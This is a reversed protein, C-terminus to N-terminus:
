KLLLMKKTFSKLVGNESQIELRYFYMGSPLQQADFNTQHRGASYKEQQLISKVERGLVDIVRLTVAARAQLEFEIVTSPNFPNPYNQLLQYTYSKTNETQEQSIEIRVTQLEHREGSLDESWLRYFYTGFEVEDDNFAYTGGSTGKTALGSELSFDSIQAYTEGEKKREIIFGRNQNESLTKWNLLVGTETKTATLGQFEVPLPIDSAPDSLAWTSFETVGSLEVYNQETNVTGGMQQWAGSGENYRYLQLGAEALSAASVEADTYYMRLAADFVMGGIPEITIYRKVAKRSSTNPPETNPFIEVKVQSLNESAFNLMVGYGSAADQWIYNGAGAISVSDGSKPLVQQLAGLTYLKGFGWSNNHPPINGTAGDTRASDTIAAMFESVSLAPRAQLLIAGLGAIHPAAASTGTFSGATTSVDTPATIEPKPLNTRTPGVSSGSYITGSGVSYAAVSIASDATSPTTINKYSTTHSAWSGYSLKWGDFHVEDGGVDALRLKWGSEGNHNQLLFQIERDGNPEYNNHYVLINGGDESYVNESLSFPGYIPSGGPAILYALLSDSGDYWIHAYFQGSGTNFSVEDQGGNPVDGEVHVNQGRNNGAAVAFLKGPGAYGSIARESDRSGDHAGFNSGASYNVSVPLNHLAAKATIYNFADVLESSGGGSKLAVLIIKADPAMGKQGSASGDGAAIGVCNTGHTYGSGFSLNGASNAIDTSDYERGYTFAPETPNPSSGNQDWVYLMRTNSDADLFDGNRTLASFGFDVVAVITNRGTYGLAHASDANTGQWYGSVKDNSRSRNMLPEDAPNLEALAFEALNDLAAIANQSISITMLDSLRTNITGGAAAIEMEIKQIENPSFHGHKSRLTLNLRTEAELTQAAGGAKRAQLQFQLRATASSARENKKVQSFIDSASFLFTWVVIATISIRLLKDM